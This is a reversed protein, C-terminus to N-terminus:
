LAMPHRSPQSIQICVPYPLCAWGRLSFARVLVWRSPVLFVDLLDPKALSNRAEKSALCCLFLVHSRPQRTKIIDCQTALLRHVSSMAFASLLFATDARSAGREGDVAAWEGAVFHVGGAMRNRCSAVVGDGCKNGLSVGARDARAPVTM